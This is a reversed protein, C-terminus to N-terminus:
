LSGPSPPFLGTFFGIITSDKTEANIKNGNLKGRHRVALWIYRSYRHRHHASNAIKRLWDPFFIILQLQLGFNIICLTQKILRFNLSRIAIRISKSPFFNIRQFPFSNFYWIQGTWSELSVKEFSIFSRNKGSLLIGTQFFWSRQFFFINLYKVHLDMLRWYFLGILFFMTRRRNRLTKCLYHSFYHLVKSSVRGASFAAIELTVTGTWRVSDFAVRDRRLRAM